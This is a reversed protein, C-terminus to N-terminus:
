MFGQKFASNSKFAHCPWKFFFIAIFMAHHLVNKVIRAFYMHDSLPRMVLVLNVIKVLLFQVHFMM